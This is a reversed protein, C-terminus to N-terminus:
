RLPRWFVLLPRLPLRSVAFRDGLRVKYGADDHHGYRAALERDTVYRGDVYRYTTGDEDGLYSWGSASYSTGTFGLNPNVYTVLDSTGVRRMESAARALLFSVTNRPMGEFAFVRSVVAATTAPRGRCRLLHRLHAVDLPSVVCVAGVEGTDGHMLGYAWGDRRPSRLYHFRGTIERVVEETVRAFIFDRPTRAEPALWERRPPIECALGEVLPGVADLDVHGGLNAIRPLHLLAQLQLPRVPRDNVSAAREIVDLLSPDNLDVQVGLTNLGV